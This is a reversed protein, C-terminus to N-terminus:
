TSSLRKAGSGPGRELGIITFLLGVYSSLIFCLNIVVCVIDIIGSAINQCM